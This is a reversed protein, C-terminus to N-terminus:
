ALPIVLVPTTTPQPSGGTPEVSLAVAAADQGSGELLAPATGALLGASVPNGQPPVYWMQYTKGPGPDPLRDPVLVSRGEAASRVVSATVPGAAPGPYHQADPAELVETVATPTPPTQTSWPRWTLVVGAVVAAAALGALFRRRRRRPRERISRIEARSRPPQPSPLPQVLGPKPEAAVAALVAQRLAPPPPAAPALIVLTDRIADVEAQCDPCDALHGDFVQREDTDVADLAYVAALDHPMDSM